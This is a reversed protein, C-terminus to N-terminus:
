HRVEDTGPEEPLERDGKVVWGTDPEMVENVVWTPFVQQLQFRAMMAWLGAKCWGEWPRGRQEFVRWCLLARDLYACAVEVQPTAPHSARLARLRRGLIRLNREMRHCRDRERGPNLEYRARAIAFADRLFDRADEPGWGEHDVGGPEREDDCGQGGPEDAPGRLNEPGVSERVEDTAEDAPARRM